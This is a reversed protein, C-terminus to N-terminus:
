TRAERDPWAPLDLGFTRAFRDREADARAAFEAILADPRGSVEQVWAELAGYCDVLPLRTQCVEECLRCAFCQFPRHAEESRISEGRALAEALQLKARGTVLEDGTLLYAPCTSVCSGCFTCRQASERLLPRGGGDESPPVRWRDHRGARAGGARALAGLAPAAASVAGMLLAYVRPAFFIGTLNHLRTRVRFFKGPNLLRRPDLERKRSALAALREPSLATRVLPANWIGIGYPKGGHRVGARTLLQVLVLRLLYDLGRSADCAFAAIVVGEPGVSGRAVSFELSLESGFRRAIGRAEAVFDPIRRLPLVVESALLSPGLRQAKLPFFRESWLYRASVEAAPEGGQPTRAAEAEDDFHLLVADREEVIPRALGTRDRFLRNEEAMRQRDHVAVHSPVVGAAELREVFGIAEGLDDFYLLRPLSTGPAERVRLTLETFVGLQGETGVFDALTRDEGRLEIVKGDVTVARAAILATSIPGYRYSELGLGGTAAWGAVTSFRSSPTTMPVLGHPALRAALDGWRAGPEVRVARAAGDVEIVRMMGSFDLVIGNKTPVAGGFASSSIGRPFVALGREAAFRMVEVVEAEDRPRVVLLPASRHLLGGLFRPVRALDRRYLRREFAGSVIRSGKPLRAGLDRSLAHILRVRRPTDRDGLHLWLLRLRQGPSGILLYAILRLLARVSLSRPDGDLLRAVAPPVELGHLDRRRRGAARGREVWFDSWSM